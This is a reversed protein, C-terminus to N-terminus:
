RFPLNPGIVCQDLRLAEIWHIKRLRLRKAAPGGFELVHALRIHHM